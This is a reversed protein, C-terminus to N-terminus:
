NWLKKKEWPTINGNKDMQRYIENYDEDYYWYTYIQDPERYRIDYCDHHDLVNEGKENIIYNNNYIDNVIAYGNEDFNNCSELYDPIVTRGNMDMYGLYIMRNDLKITRFYTLGNNSYFPYYPNIPYESVNTSLSQACLIMDHLSYRHESVSVNYLAFLAFKHPNDKLIDPSDYFECNVVINGDEDILHGDYDWAVKSDGYHKYDYGKEGNIFPTDYSKIYNATAIAMLVLLVTSLYFPISKKIYEM